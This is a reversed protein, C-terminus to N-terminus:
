VPKSDKPSRDQAPWLRPKEMTSCAMLSHLVGFEINYMIAYGCQLIQEM